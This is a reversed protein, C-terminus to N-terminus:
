DINPAELLKREHFNLAFLNGMGEIYRYVCGGDINFSGKFEQSLIIERKAPTHGHILLKGGLYTEDVPFNRIWLMSDTDDLPDASFFNLGAHVVLFDETRIYYKTGSFFDIYVPDLESVSGANFSKLTENGGNGLWLSFAESGNESELLMQEHNGRITFIRYRSERLELLFDIVGKSDNGRDIYDGVFYIRDSKRIGIIESVLKRLTRSCGHIDGVFFVRDMLYIM